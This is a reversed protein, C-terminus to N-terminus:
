IQMYNPENIFKLFTKITAIFMRVSCHAIGCVHFHLIKSNRIKEYNPM